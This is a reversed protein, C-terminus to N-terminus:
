QKKERLYEKYFIPLEHFDSWPLITVLTNTNIVRDLIRKFRM